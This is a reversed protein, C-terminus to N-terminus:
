RRDQGAPTTADLFAALTTDPQRDSLRLFVDAAKQTRGSLYWEAGLVLWAERDNPQAQLHTELKAIQGAFDAPEAYITQIDNAKALWGPEAAQAARLQEAAESYQGRVIAVQALRVRPAASHPDARAAQEFREAAKHWNRARFLRDGYTTLQVARSPDSKRPRAPTFVTRRPGIPMPGAIGFGDWGPAPVFGPGGPFPGTGMVFMTLPPFATIGLGGYGFGSFYYPASYFGGGGGPSGGHHHLIGHHHGGHHSAAWGSGSCALLGLVCGLIRHPSM